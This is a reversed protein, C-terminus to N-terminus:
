TICYVRRVKFVEELLMLKSCVPVRHAVEQLKGCIINVHLSQAAFHARNCRDNRFM